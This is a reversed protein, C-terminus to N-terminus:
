WVALNREHYDVNQAERMMISGVLLVDRARGPRWLRSVTVDKRARMPSRESAPGRETERWSNSVCATGARRTGCCCTMRGRAAAAGPEDRRRAGSACGANWDRPHPRPCPTSAARKHAGWGSGGLGPPARRHAVWARGYAPLRAARQEHPRRPGRPGRPGQAGQAQGRGSTM